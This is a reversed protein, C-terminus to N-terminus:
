INHQMILIYGKELLINILSNFDNYINEAPADFMGSIKDLIKEEAHSGDCLSLIEYSLENLKFISGSVNDFLLYKGEESRIDVSNSLKFTRM